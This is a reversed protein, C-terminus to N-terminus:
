MKFTRSTGVNAVLHRQNHCQESGCSHGSHDCRGSSASEFYVFEHNTHNLANKWNTQVMKCQLLPDWGRWELSRLAIAEFGCGWIWPKSAVGIVEFSYCWLWPRLAMAEFSCGWLQAYKTNVACSQPLPKSATSKIIYSQPWQLPRLAM